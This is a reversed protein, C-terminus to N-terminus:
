FGDKIGRRLLHRKKVPLKPGDAEDPVLSKGNALVSVFTM